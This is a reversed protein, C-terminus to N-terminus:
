LIQSETPKLKNNNILFNNPKFLVIYVALKTVTLLVLWTIVCKIHGKKTLFIRWPWVTRSILFGDPIYCGWHRSKMCVSNPPSQYCCPNYNSTKRPCNNLFFFVYNGVETQVTTFSLARFKNPRIHDILTGLKMNIWARTNSKHVFTRIGLLICGLLITFNSADGRCCNWLYWSDM